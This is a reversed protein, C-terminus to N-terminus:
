APVVELNQIHKMFKSYWPVAFTQPGTDVFASDLFFQLRAM